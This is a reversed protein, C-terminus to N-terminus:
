SLLFQAQLMEIIATCLTVTLWERSVIFLCQFFLTLNYTKTISIFNPHGTFPPVGYIASSPQPPKIVYGSDSFGINQKSCHSSFPVLFLQVAFPSIVSRYFFDIKFNSLKENDSNWLPEPVFFLNWCNHIYSIKLCRLSGHMGNKPSVCILNCHYLM